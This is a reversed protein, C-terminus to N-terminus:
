RIYISGQICKGYHIISKIKNNREQITKFVKNINYLENYICQNKKIYM